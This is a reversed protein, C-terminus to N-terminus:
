SLGSGFGRKRLVGSVRWMSRKRLQHEQSIGANVGVYAACGPEVSDLGFIDFGGCIAVGGDPAFTLEDVRSRSIGGTQYKWQSSGGYQVYADVVWDGPLLGRVGVALQHMDYNNEQVRPGLITMRKGFFFPADPDFRSDLLLRFDQPIFPNTPPMFVQELVVPGFQNNVAYDAFIGDTYLELNETLDFNVAAYASTRTLPM